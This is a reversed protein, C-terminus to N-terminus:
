RSMSARRYALSKRAAGLQRMSQLDKERLGEELDRCHKLLGEGESVESDSLVLPMTPLARNMEAAVSAAEIAEGSELLSAIKRLYSCLGRESLPPSEM